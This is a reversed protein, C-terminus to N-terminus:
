GKEKRRPVNAKSAAGKMIEKSQQINHVKVVYCLVCQIASCFLYKPLHCRFIDIHTYNKHLQSTM